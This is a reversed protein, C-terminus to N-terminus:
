SAPFVTRARVPTDTRYTARATGCFLARQSEVPYGAVIQRFGDFITDFTACLSDVPFNSAFMCRDPGFMAITETVIRRNNEVRWPQGPQGLGSIKVRINPCEALRAM